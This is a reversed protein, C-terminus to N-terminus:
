PNPQPWTAATAEADELEPLRRGYGHKEILRRAEALAARDQFLRARTLACDALHLAMGGRAAIRQAEDLDARAADPMGLAHRLWARTLLGRPIYMQDRAARLRDLAHESLERTEPGPPRGQLRDAYLACRALTLHDLAINLLGLHREAVELMQGARRAVADCVGVRDPDVGTGADDAGLWAAQEAGALLLDGYKFGPLSYLLPYQPQWEAQLREAEAFADLAERTEGQQHLADALTTRSVMRLFADGSRDAHEVAHRADAVAEAVRGLSLQLESLNSYVRAAYQWEEQRVYLEAGARMPELAEALRGLARLQIATENLLWAQDPESLEPAPRRWPEAFFCTVAGLNAGFAGLKRWSYFGDNGTGRLIRDDYVEDFTEQRLGALCGHAVAQYLPQLGDLGDPRHPVCGKLWAYLRRHGERWADPDRTKLSEALHERVLPHADLAGSDGPPEILGAEALQSLTIRWDTEAIPDTRRKFRGLMGKPREFLPETLGRIPPATRLASLAGASAPRDFLGLLRLASLCRAGQEGGAALWHEYAAVVRFAHGGTAENAKAFDVQDRQRIDGGHALRLYRGLLSLTLAHGRVERSAAILEPDDAPIPAAGARTAGHRHLLC